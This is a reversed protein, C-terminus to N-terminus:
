DKFELKIGSKRMGAAFDKELEEWSRGALLHERAKLEKVNDQLAKLYAKIRAADGEGDEHYFYYTLLCGLGYNKNAKFLFERQDMTMFKELRPMSINKGLHRGGEGDKGYATIAPIISSRNVAVKYRGNTYGTYAVYEASGEIYWYAEKVDHGMLQHTIEHSMVTFDKDKTDVTYDKGTKKVGLSKLPVLVVAEGGSRYTCVGASGNPGGGKLYEEYHEFLVVKFPKDRGATHRHNLPLLRLYEHTAEFVKAISNVLRTRLQVNCSFEFHSSSYIYTKSADDEKVISIGLEEPVSVSTPWEGDFGVQGASSPTSGPSPAPPTPPVPSPKAPTPPATTPAAPKKKQPNKKLWDKVFVTDLGSLNELSVVSTKGNKLRITVTTEDATVLEGEVQRGQTDNWIRAQLPAAILLSLLTSFSLPSIKM